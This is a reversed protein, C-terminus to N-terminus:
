KDLAYLTKYKNKTNPANQCLTDGDFSTRIIIVHRYM